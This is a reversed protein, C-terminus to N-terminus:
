MACAPQPPGLIGSAALQRAFWDNLAPTGQGTPHVGDFWWERRLLPELDAASPPGIVTSNARAWAAFGKAYEARHPEITPLCYFGKTRAFPALPEALDAYAIDWQPLPAIPSSEETKKDEAKRWLALTKELDFSEESKELAFFSKTAKRKSWPWRMASFTGAAFRNLLVHQGLLVAASWRPLDPETELQKAYAKWARWANSPNLFQIVRESFAEKEFRYLPNRDYADFVENLFVVRTGALKGRGETGLQRLFSELMHRRELFTAGAMSFSLITAPTGSQGLKEEVSMPDIGFLTASSGTLIVVPHNEWGPNKELHRVAWRGRRAAESDPWLLDDPVLSRAALLVGFITAVVLFAKAVSPRQPGPAVLALALLVTVPILVMSTADSNL